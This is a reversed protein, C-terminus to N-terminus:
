SACWTAQKPRPRRPKRNPKACRKWITWGNRWHDHSQAINPRLYALLKEVNARARESLEAIYGCEDLAQALILDPAIFGAM